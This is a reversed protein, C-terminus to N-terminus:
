SSFNENIQSHFFNLDCFKKLSIKLGRISNNSRLFDILMHSEFFESKKLNLSKSDNGKSPSYIRM